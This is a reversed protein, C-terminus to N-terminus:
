DKARAPFRDNINLRPQANPAAKVMFSRGNSGVAAVGSGIVFCKNFNTTDACTVASGLINVPTGNDVQLTLTTAADSPLPAMLGGLFGVILLSFVLGVWRLSKMSSEGM